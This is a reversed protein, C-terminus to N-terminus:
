DFLDTLGTREESDAPSAWDSLFDDPFGGVSELLSRWPDNKPILIVAGRWQKM